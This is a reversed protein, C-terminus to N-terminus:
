FLVVGQRCGTVRVSVAIIRLLLHATFNSHFYLFIINVSTTSITALKEVVTAVVGHNTRNRRCKREKWCIRKFYSRHQIADLSDSEVLAFPTKEKPAGARCRYFPSSMSPANPHHPYLGLLRDLIDALPFLNFATM